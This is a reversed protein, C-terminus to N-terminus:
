TGTLILTCLWQLVASLDALASAPLPMVTILPYHITLLQQLTEPISNPEMTADHLLQAPTAQTPM